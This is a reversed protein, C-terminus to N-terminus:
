SYRHPIVWVQRGGNSGSTVEIKELGMDALVNDPLMQLVRRDRGTRVHMTLAAWISNGLSGVAKLGAMTRSPNRSLAVTSVIKEKRQDSM